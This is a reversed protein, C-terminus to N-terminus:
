GAAAVEPSGPGPAPRSPQEVRRHEVVLAGILVADVAVLLWAGDVDHLLALLAAIAVAAVVRERAIVRFARWVAAAIGVVGLALGGGLMVLFPTPVPDAPHLAIEELGAAALIIGAILPAHSATYVDRAFRGRRNADADIGAGQHELAPGPRDFYAWWLTGAFVGAGVLAVVTASPLGAGEELSAVVPAGIAVIVEGLAIILILGHREAFHGTRIIWEGRGADAMGIVIIATSVVWAGVRAGDDLFSGAVLVLVAVGIISGWRRITRRVGDTQDAALGMTGLALVQIVALSIAFVPGGDEFATSVSAAMPISAATGILFLLRVLRGNGSVANASWTFQQWPLWLLWFLLAAEGVGPWHPHHVLHGVLQSFALVYGLDFFLEVPDATFDEAPEPVVIGRV